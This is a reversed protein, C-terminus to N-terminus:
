PTATEAAARRESGRLARELRAAWWEVLDLNAGRPIRYAEGVALGYERWRDMARRAARGTVAGGRVGGGVVDVTGAGDGLGDGPWLDVAREWADHDAPLPLMAAQKASLKIADPSLAAGASWEVALRTCLPSSVAAALRVALRVVLREEPRVADRHTGSGAGARGVTSEVISARLALSIVPTVPLWRGAPDALAELVATQTALLVKPVLRRRAWAERVAADPACPGDGQAARLHEVGICPRLYARGLLRAARRGWGCRGPEILGSTVLPAMTAGGGSEGQEHHGQEHQGAERVVGRLAYYEDRFDASCEAVDGVVGGGVHETRPLTAIVPLSAWRPSWAVEARGEGPAEPTGACVVVPPRDAGASGTVCAVVCAHVSAEFHRGGPTSIARLVARRDVEARVGASHATALVSRPLVLGVRGGRARALRVSLLLFAAAMDAYGKVVGESWEAIRRARWRDAATESRLQGLFPPNTVVLDFGGGSEGFVRPFAEGWDLLTVEGATRDSAAEGHEGAFAGGRWPLRSVLADGVVIARRLAAPDAKGGVLADLRLRCLDVAVPDIDVGHVGARVVARLAGEDPALRRAARLLFEGAGCAPDCVTWLGRDKGADGIDGSSTVVAGAGARGDGLTLDLVHEVLWGPTYYVGRARRGAVRGPAGGGSVAPTMAEHLSAIEDLTLGLRRVEAWASGALVSRDLVAGALVDCLAEVRGPVSLRALEAILGARVSACVAWGGSDGGAGGEGGECAANLDRALAVVRRWRGGAGRAPMSPDAITTTREVGPVGLRVRFGARVM